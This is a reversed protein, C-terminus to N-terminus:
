ASRRTDTRRGCDTCTPALWATSHALGVCSRCRRRTAYTILLCLGIWGGAAVAACLYVGILGLLFDSM